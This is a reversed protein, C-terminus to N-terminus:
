MVYKNWQMMALSLDTHYLTVVLLEYGFLNRSTLYESPAAQVGFAVGGCDLADKINKTEVNYSGFMMVRAYHTLLESKKSYHHRVLPMNKGPYDNYPIDTMEMMKKGTKQIKQIDSFITEVYINIFGPVKGYAARIHDQNAYMGTLM